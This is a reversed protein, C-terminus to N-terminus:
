KHKIPQYRIMDAFKTVCTDVVELNYGASNSIYRWFFMSIKSRFEQDKAQRGLRALIDFDDVTLKVTPM